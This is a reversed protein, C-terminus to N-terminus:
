EIFEGLAKAEDRMAKDVANDAEEFQLWLSRGDTIGVGRAGNSWPFDRMYRYRTADIRLADCEAISVDREALFTDGIAKNIVNLRDWCDAMHALRKNEAMLELVVTPTAQERFAQNCLTLWTMHEDASTCDSEKVALLRESANKLDTYDTM